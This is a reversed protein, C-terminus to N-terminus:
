VVAYWEYLAIWLQGIAARGSYVSSDNTDTWNYLIYIYMYPWKMGLCSLEHCGDDLRILLDLLPRPGIKSMESIAGIWWDGYLGGYLGGIAM